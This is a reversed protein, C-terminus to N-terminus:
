RTERRRMNSMARQLAHCHRIRFPLFGVNVPSCHNRSEKGQKSSTGQRNGQIRICRLNSEAPKKGLNSRSTQGIQCWHCVPPAAPANATTTDSSAACSTNHRSRPRCRCGRRRNGNDLGWRGSNDSCYRNRRISVTAKPSAVVCRAITSTERVLSMSLHNTSQCKRDDCTNRCTGPQAQGRQLQSFRHCPFLAARREEILLQLRLALQSFILSLDLSQLALNLLLVVLEIRHLASEILLLDLSLSPRAPGTRGSTSIRRTM